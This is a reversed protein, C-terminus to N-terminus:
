DPLSGHAVKWFGREVVCDAVEQPRGISKIKTVNKVKM